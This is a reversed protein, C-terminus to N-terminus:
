SYMPATSTKQNNIQKEKLNFSVLSFTECIFLRITRNQTYQWYLFLHLLWSILLHKSRPLLALVFTSLMNFLLSRIKSVFTWMILAITKWYNRISTLTPCYLKSSFFQLKQVTTNSFVRSLGKSQLSILGTWGLPSWDQTNMPPVSVPASVGISQRGSALFQSTPLIRISPFIPTPHRLTLHDSPMVLEIRLFKFLSQSNTISLSAQCAATWPTM